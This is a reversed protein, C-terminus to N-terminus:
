RWIFEYSEDLKLEDIKEVLDKDFIEFNSSDYKYEKISKDAIDVQYQMSNGEEIGYITLLVADNNLWEIKIGENDSLVEEIGIEQSIEQNAIDYIILDLDSVILLYNGDKSMEVGKIEGQGVINVGIDTEDESNLNRRIINEYKSFYNYSSDLESADPYYYSYDSYFLFNEYTGILREGELCGDVFEGVSEFEGSNPFYKFVSSHYSCEDGISAFILVYNEQEKMDYINVLSNNFDNPTLLRISSGNSIEIEYLDSPIMYMADWIYIKDDIIEFDSCAGYRFAKCNFIEEVEDNSYSYLGEETLAYIKENYSRIKDLDKKYKINSLDFIEEVQNLSSNKVLYLSEITEDEEENSNIEVDKDKETSESEAVEEDRNIYNQLFDITKISIYGAVTIIIIVMTSGLISGLIIVVLKPFKRM